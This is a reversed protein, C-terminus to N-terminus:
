GVKQRPAAEGEWLKRYVSVIEDVERNRNFDKVVRERARAGMEAMRGPDRMLPELAQVLGDVDDIPALM